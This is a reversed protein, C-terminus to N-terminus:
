ASTDAASAATIRAPLPRLVFMMVPYLEEPFDTQLQERVIEMGALEFLLRFYIINRCVSNDNLDLNFAHTEVM